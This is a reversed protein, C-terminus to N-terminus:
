ACATTAPNLGRKRHLQRQHHTSVRRNGVRHAFQFTPQALFRVRCPWTGITSISLPVPTVDTSNLAGFAVFASSALGFASCASTTCEGQFTASSIAGGAAVGFDSLDFASYFVEYGDSNFFGTSTQPTPASQVGNITAVINEAAEVNLEFAFLDFGLGNVVLNDTFGLTVFTGLTTNFATSDANAGTLAAEASAANWVTHSSADSLLVDAFANNDFDIGLFTAAHSAATFFCFSATVGVFYLIARKM